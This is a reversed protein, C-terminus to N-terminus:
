WRCWYEAGVQTAGIASASGVRFGHGVDATATRRRRRQAPPRAPLRTLLPRTLAPVIHSARHGTSNVPPELPQCTATQAHTHASERPASSPAPAPPLEPLLCVKRPRGPAREPGGSKCREGAIGHGALWDSQGLGARALRVRHEGALKLPSQKSPQRRGRPRDWSRGWLRGCSRAWLRRSSAGKRRM